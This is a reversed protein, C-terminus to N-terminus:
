GLKTHEEPALFPEAAPGPQQLLKQTVPAKRVAHELNNSFTQSCVPIM